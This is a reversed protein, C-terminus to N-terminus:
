AASAIEEIAAQAKPLAPELSKMEGDLNEVEAELELHEMKATLGEAVADDDVYAEVDHDFLWTIGQVQIVSTFAACQLFVLLVVLVFHCWQVWWHRAHRDFLWASTVRFYFSRRMEECFQAVDGVDYKVSRRRPGAAAGPEDAAGAAAGAAAGGGDGGARRSDVGFGSSTTASWAALQPSRM